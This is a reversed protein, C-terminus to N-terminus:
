LRYFCLGTARSFKIENEQVPDTWFSDKCTFCSSSSGGKVKSSKYLELKEHTFM